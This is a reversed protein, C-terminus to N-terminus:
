GRQEGFLRVGLRECQVQFVQNKRVTPRDAKQMFAFSPTNLKAMTWAVDTGPDSLSGVKILLQTERHPLRM